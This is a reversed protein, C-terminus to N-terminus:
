LAAAAAVNRTVATLPISYAPVGQLQRALLAAAQGDGLIVATELLGALARVPAQDSVEFLDLGQALLARAEDVQGSHGRLLAEWGIDRPDLGRGRIAAAAEETRGLWVLPWFATVFVGVRGRVPSGIEESLAL